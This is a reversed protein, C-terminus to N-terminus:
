GPGARPVRSAGSRYASLRTAAFRFSQQALGNAAYASFGGGGSGIVMTPRTGHAAVQIALQRAYHHLPDDVNTAVHVPSSLPELGPHALTAAEAAGKPAIACVSRVPFRPNRALLVALSAGLGFGVVAIAHPQSGTAPLLEEAFHDTFPVFAHGALWPLETPTYLVLAPGRFGGAEVAEMVRTPAEDRRAAYEPASMEEGIYVLLLGADEDGAGHHFDAFTHPGLPSTPFLLKM